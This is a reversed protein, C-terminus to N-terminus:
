RNEELDVANGARLWETDVDTSLVAIDANRDYEVM